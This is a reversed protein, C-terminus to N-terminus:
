MVLSTVFARLNIDRGNWLSSKSALVYVRAKFGLPAIVVATIPGRGGCGKVTLEQKIEVDHNHNDRQGQSSIRGRLPQIPTARSTLGQDGGLLGAFGIIAIRTGLLALRHVCNMPVLRAGTIHV